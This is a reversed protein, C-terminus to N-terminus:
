KMQTVKIAIFIIILIIGCVLGTVNLTKATRSADVTSFINSIGLSLCCCLTNFISWGLYSPAVDRTWLMKKEWGLISHPNALGEQLFQKTLQLIM